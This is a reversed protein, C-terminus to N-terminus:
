LRHVSGLVGPQWWTLQGTHAATSARLLKRWSSVLSRCRMLLALVELLCSCCM